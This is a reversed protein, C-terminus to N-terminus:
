DEDFGVELVSPSDSIVVGKLGLNSIILERIHQKLPPVSMSIDGTKTNHSSTSSHQGSVIEPKERGKAEYGKFILPERGKAEYIRLRTWGITKIKFEFRYWGNPNSKKRYLSSIDPPEARPLLLHKYNKLYLELTDPPPASAMDPPPVSIIDPPLASGGDFDAERSSSVWPDKIIEVFLMDGILNGLDDYTLTTTLSFSRLYPFELWLEEYAYFQMYVVPIDKYCGIQTSITRRAQPLKETINQGIDDSINKDFDDSFFLPPSDCPIDQQQTKSTSCSAM